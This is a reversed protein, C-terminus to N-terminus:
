GEAKYGVAACVVSEDATNFLKKGTGPSADEPHWEPAWAMGPEILEFGGFLARTEDWSRLRVPNATQDYRQVLQLYEAARQPQAGDVTAHSIALYSGAPLLDRYQVLAQEVEDDDPVFHLVAIMLLAIPEAPDVVGTARVQKWLSKPSRLDAQVVAHREPDGHKDLLRQSHAVAVPEYDVYVVRSDPAVEDAVHHVNGVTPVGSGLDVFQRVGRGVLHRVIRHLLYRNALAVPRVIPFVELITKGFERDIAYNAKGGLYWDYMRAASPRELDIDRGGTGAPTNEAAM